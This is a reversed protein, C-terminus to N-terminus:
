TEFEKLSKLSQLNFEKTFLIKGDRESKWECQTTVHCSFVVKILNKFEIIMELVDTDM